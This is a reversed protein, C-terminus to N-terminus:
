KMIKLGARLASALAILWGLHDHHAADRTTPNNFFQGDSATLLEKQPTPLASMHVPQPCAQRGADTTKTTTKELAARPNM